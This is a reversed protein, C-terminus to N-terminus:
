VTSLGCCMLKEIWRLFHEIQLVVMLKEIWRLCHEIQLVDTKRDM